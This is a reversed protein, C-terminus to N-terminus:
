ILDDDFHQLELESGYYGRRKHSSRDGRRSSCPRIFWAIVIFLAGIALLIAGIGASSLDDEDGHETAMSASAPPPRPPLDQQTIPSRTPTSTPIAAPNMTVSTTSPVISSPTQDENGTSTPGFSPVVTATTELTPVGTITPYTSSTPLSTGTPLFTGTPFLSSTPSFTNDTTIGTGSPYASTPFSTITPYASSTPPPSGTPYFTGTPHLSGSPAFTPDEEQLEREVSIECHTWPHMPNNCGCFTEGQSAQCIGKNLCFGFRQEHHKAAVSLLDDYCSSSVQLHCGESVRICHFKDCSAIEHCSSPVDPDALCLKPKGPCLPLGGKEVSPQAAARGTLLTFFFWPAMM